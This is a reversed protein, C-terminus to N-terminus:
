FIFAMSIATLFILGFSAVLHNAAGPADTTPVAGSGAPTSTTSTGGGTVTGTGNVEFTSNCQGDYLNIDGLNTGTKNQYGLRVLTEKGPEYLPWGGGYGKLGEKPDKAFAAWAGRLYKGIAAEENTTAPIGSGVPLTDFLVPLESAHWAGSDPFSTLRTNPFSGFWRYRWTPVSNQISINARVATPCTFVRLNFATWFSQPYSQNSLAAITAFLGAEYDANGILVPIKSFNGSRSLSPYDSFVTVNDISPAFSNPSSSFASNGSSPIAALVSQYSKSRM